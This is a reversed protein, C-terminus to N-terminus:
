MLPPCNCSTQQSYSVALKNAPTAQWTVRGQGDKWTADNAIRDNSPNFRFISLNNATSDPAMGGVYAAARLYRASGYFWLRDKKLPGGFGPNFDGNVKITNPNTFGRSRLDSIPLADHLSLTYIETTATANFLFLLSSLLIHVLNSM